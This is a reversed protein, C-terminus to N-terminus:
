RTRDGQNAAAQYTAATIVTGIVLWLGGIKMNRVAAKRATDYRQAQAQALHDAADAAAAEKVVSVFTQAEVLNWGDNVLGATVQEESDGGRLKAIINARVQALEEPSKAASTYSM